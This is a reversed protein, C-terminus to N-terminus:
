TKKIWLKKLEETIKQEEQPTLKKERDEHSASVKKHKEVIKEVFEKITIVKAKRDRVRLSLERDDTVVMTQHSHEPKGIMSVIRDDASEAESFIIQIAEQRLQDWNVKLEAYGDFVVTTRNRSNGQPRHRMLFQIFGERTPEFSLTSKKFLEPLRMMMNYGDLIFHM